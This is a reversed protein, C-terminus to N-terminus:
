ACAIVESAAIIEVLMQTTEKDWAMRNKWEEREAATSNVLCAQRRAQGTLGALSRWELGAADCEAETAATNLLRVYASLRRALRETARAWWWDTFERTEKDYQIQIRTPRPGDLSIGADAALRKIAAGKSIGEFHAVADIVDGSVGCGFCKYFSAHVRFSPTDEKHFPCLGLFDKGYSKLPMYEQMLAPLSVSEKVRRIADQTM